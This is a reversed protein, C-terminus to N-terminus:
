RFFYSSFLFMTPAAIIHNTWKMNVMWYAPSFISHLFLNQGILTNSVFFFWLTPLNINCWIVAHIKLSIIKNRASWFYYDTLLGACFPLSFYICLAPISYRNWIRHKSVLLGGIFVNCRRDSESSSMGYEVSEIRQLMKIKNNLQPARWVCNAMFRCISEFESIENLM